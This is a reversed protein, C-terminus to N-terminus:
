AIERKILTTNIYAAYIAELATASESPQRAVVATAWADEIPLISLGRIFAVVSRISPADV